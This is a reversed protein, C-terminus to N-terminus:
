RSEGRAPQLDLGDAFSEHRYGGAGVTRLFQHCGACVRGQPTLEWETWRHCNFRCYEVLRKGIHPDKSNSVPKEWDPDNQYRAEVTDYQQLESGRSATVGVM